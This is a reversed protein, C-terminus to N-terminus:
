GENKIHKITMSNKRDGDQSVKRGGIETVELPVSVMQKDSNPEIIKNISPWPFKKDM